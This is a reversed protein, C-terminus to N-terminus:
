YNGFLLKKLRPQDPFSINILNHKAGWVLGRLTSASSCFLWRWTLYLKQLYSVLLSRTLIKTHLVIGGYSKVM